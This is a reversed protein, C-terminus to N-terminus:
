VGSEIKLKEELEYILLKYERIYTELADIEIELKSKEQEKAYCISSADKLRERYTFLKVETETM